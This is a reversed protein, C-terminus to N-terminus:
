RGPRGKPKSLEALRDKTAWTRPLAHLERLRALESADAWIVHRGQADRSSTVWGARIWRRVTDLGIELRSALGSPRYEDRGLSSPCGHPRRPTPDLRRLLRQVMGRNFRDARKPPRFGEGNLRDAIEAAGLGESCWARVRAVLEPYDSRLDYRRVPRSLTHSEVPGGAWHVEVDVRESSKDVVVSVREVLLRAIRQREAPTTTSARWVAPLDGALSRIAREDDPSLRGPSTGRWREYDDELQRRSKLSEEWRRELERGVLRNEPECAQYQRAARDVEHDARERRQQWHRALEAREREVGAVAALSAELAAPEVAALVRVAVLADLAPGALSQCLPEGYGTPGRTCTYAHRNKPGSYLVIMRRGCRGCRLLGALLSAGQRPAGPRDQRARNAELREQNARFRDWTIYAPVRDRILVLCEEPRRIRKGATPRGPQKRRPDIPRHGFRYAGAYGPHHLLNSLTTRNPRRWQLEGRNPGSNSRVPIRVGHRVLYRLLGHLTTERDLQDFILRVTAQVQEDPDIAWEGSALRVYGIPPTGMLAGRRAKNLKGQYMREKLVHLEAESMMGHLGLLLRDNHDAPDYIAEADALLVRFRACLELLQHWDRNSRALRSMELGLILGVHDLAVEALLRQFGPRGEISQGSRGLDDDITTIRDRTWGLAVARESLAYQRATSEQHDTVQQPTSQRVYVFASRDLHWDRLKPSRAPDTM